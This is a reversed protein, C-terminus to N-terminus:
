ENASDFLYNAAAEENKDCAFYAEAALSKPFGLSALREIAENEQPTVRITTPQDPVADAGSLEEEANSAYDNSQSMMRIAELFAAPNSQISHALQPNTRALEQLLSDLAEPNGQLAQLYDQLQQSQQMSGLMGSAEGGLAPEEPITGSMLYEVARDPNGFSARLSRSVEERSFGLEMISQIKAEEASDGEPQKAAAPASSPTHAPPKEPQSAATPLAKPVIAKQKMLVLSDGVAIGCDAASPEDALIKGAHILRQLEVPAASNLSFIKEKVSRISDSPEIELDFSKGELTRIVIRM